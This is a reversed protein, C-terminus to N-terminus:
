LREGLTETGCDPETQHDLVALWGAREAAVLRVYVEAIALTHAIHPSNPRSLRRSRAPLHCVSPSEQRIL